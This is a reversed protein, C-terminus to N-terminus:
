IANLLSDFLDQAVSIVRANANYMQEFKILNAAEEDLNVGSVSDRMSQTQELLSRSAAVNISSLNSQTGVAEVLRGYGDSFSLSGNAMSGATELAAFKLANRNDNDANINFGITFTDGAQPQGKISVQYGMYSSQAFDEAASDGLLQSVTPSTKLSVGDAMTIDIRGGVAISEGAVMAVNVPPTRHGDNVTLSTGAGTQIRLDVGSSAVLRLETDGAANTSSIARIGLAIMDENGNIQEALYDNVAVPDNVDVATADFAFTTGNLTIAGAGASINSLNATTIANASVGPVSSLQAATAQASANAGTTLVRSSIAGTKPDTVAVTFREVPYGNSFGNALSGNHIGTRAGSGTIRTEGADNSFIPNDIGPIFTQDRMPPTLQKPNAPDSNDLVDYTTASTFRIIVPPSLKGDTAFAPLREGSADLAGLMDGASILGSGVNGSSTGTRIPLAFALDEPRSLATTIHQAASKTPQLTFSDGGQFSGSHLNVTLGDFTIEQPYAGTLMGQGMVKDDDVRTIVYNNTNPLLEFKYDSSTLQTADNITLSLVRDNPAANDGHKVRSFSLESANIDGFLNRGYDGDLDLGQQQLQNFQDAMVIAIRGLENMSPQLVEERFQLLGGMKGGSIQGTVNNSHNGNSLYVQDGDRVSFKNATSGVVLSQGNGIFVNISNGDQKVIQISGLESLQRLAEDRQDLLDNPMASSGQNAIAQNLNAINAALSNMQQAVSGIEQNVGIEIGQLREHLNNFRATLGETQAIVLQRAPMSSPDDASNQLAAFFSSLAGALGTGEDAFLKDVKGINTNFKDLQNFASTDMRLQAVVFENVVREISATTVGNGIYGAAGVSIAPNTLYNVSQRSFGATNANSINHGSTRLANQSAQLGSIATSLLGAM